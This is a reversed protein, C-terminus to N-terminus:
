VLNDDDYVSRIDNIMSDIVYSLYTDLGMLAKIRTFNKESGRSNIMLRKLEKRVRKRKTELRDLEYNRVMM